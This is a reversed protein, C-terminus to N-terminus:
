IGLEEKKAKQRAREADPDPHARVALAAVWAVDWDGVRAASVAARAAPYAAWHSVAARAGWHTERAAWHSARVAERAAARAEDRPWEQGNTIRTLGAIVTNVACKVLQPQEPMHSLCDALFLATKEKTM